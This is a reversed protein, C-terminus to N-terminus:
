QGQGAQEQDIVLYRKVLDFFNEYFTDRTVTASGVKVLSDSSASFPLSVSGIAGVGVSASNNTKRLAYTDQLATVFGLSVKGENAEPVCVVRVTMQLHSEADPQFSKKGEVLDTTQAAIIYGQSLLARRSAECTQAPTADFLRSFTTASNFNEQVEFTRPGSTAVCGSLMVLAAGTFAVLGTRRARSWLGPAAVPQPAACPPSASQLLSHRRTM